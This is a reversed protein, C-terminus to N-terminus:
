QEGMWIVNRMPVLTQFTRYRYCQWDADAALDIPAAASGDWQPAGPTVPDCERQGSTAGIRSEYETSRAVLALQLSLIRAWDAREAQTPTDQDYADAVGDMP